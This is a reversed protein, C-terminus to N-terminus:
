STVAVAAAPKVSLTEGECKVRSGSLPGLMAGPRPLTESGPVCTIVIVAVLGPRAAFLYEKPWGVKVASADLRGGCCKGTATASRPPGAGAGSQVIGSVTTVEAAAAVLM